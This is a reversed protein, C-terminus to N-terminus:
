FGIPLGAAEATGQLKWPTRHLRQAFPITGAALRVAETLSIALGTPRAMKNFGQVVLEVLEKIEERMAEGIQRGLERPRGSVELQSGPPYKSM